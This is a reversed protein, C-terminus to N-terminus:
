TDINELERVFIESASRAWEQFGAYPVFNESFELLRSLDFGDCVIGAGTRSADFGNIEQEIHSPVMLLPKGLYMAECVSEFGATSAYARCGAMQRLFEKDDILYFSLTEDIKQIKGADWNDWFFRLPVEPHAKHWDAVEKAFGANLMYGHIYDGESPTLSLVEQRILPPVVVINHEPDPGMPRFSLALHKVSGVSTLKTFFDLGRSGPYNIHPLGFDKHLFLYQHGLSVMPVDSGHFFYTMGALLEYFNVVVDIRSSGIEDRIMKMSPYYKHMNFSNFLVTSVMSPKRNDASPMFNMSEFQVIPAEMGKVFFDPLLRSPSKGVLVKVIEHGRGRLLKSLTLAQTMHGRGEGQVIFLYRM